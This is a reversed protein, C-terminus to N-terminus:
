DFMERRQVAYAIKIEFVVSQCKQTAGDVADSDDFTILTNQVM